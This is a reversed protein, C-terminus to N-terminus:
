QSMPGFIIGVHNSAKFMALFCCIYARTNKHKINKDENQTKLIKSAYGDLIEIRVGVDKM